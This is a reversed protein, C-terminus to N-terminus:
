SEDMFESRIMQQIEELSSNGFSTKEKLELVKPHNEGFIKVSLEYFADDKLLDYDTKRL